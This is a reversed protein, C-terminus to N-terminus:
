SYEFSGSYCQEWGEGFVCGALDISNYGERSIAFLLSPSFPRLAPPIWLIKQETGFSETLTVVWGDSRCYLSPSTQPLLVTSPSRPLSQPVSALPALISTSQSLQDVSTERSKSSSSIFFNSVREVSTKWMKQPRISFKSDLDLHYGAPAMRKGDLSFAISSVCNSQDKSCSQKGLGVDWICVATDASGSVIRTGNPSFSVSHVCDRHGELQRLQMGSKTDWIRVTRDNSGSVIWDGNPSFVASLVESTHGNLQHVQTGSRADWIRVTKDSSGSIIHKEDPSFSVSQVSATHGTLRQPHESSNAVWIRVTKDASGSVVLKGNPSFAVCLVARTHGYLMHLRKGSEADWIYILEDQSGSVIYQGDPSFAASLVYDTHGKLQLLQKGSEADWLQVKKDYSGSVIRKGDPSFATSPPYGTYGRLYQSQAGSEADWIQVTGDASSSVIKTGDPSFAVSYVSETHGNLQQLERSLKFDWLQVTKDNSGSVIHSGTPSFSVSQVVDTHGNLQQLEKGSRVNWVRVTKDDSGSVIHESDPSFNISSVRSAHGKLKRLRKGSKTDWILIAADGSSAILKGDPSSAVALVYDKHGQLLQVQQGSKADWIRITTDLSGSVILKGDPSFVICQVRDTHGDLQQLQKGSEVDWIRITADFSGSVICAGDPSFATSPVYSTHGNLQQIQTGLEMDWMYITGDACGSVIYRGDPSFSVSCGHSSQGKLQRIKMGSEADWICVTNDSSGSIIRKGIPCFSVAKVCAGVDIVVRCHRNRTRQQTIVRPLCSFYNRWSDLVPTTESLALCSLYLHGTIRFPITNFLSVINMAESALTIMDPVTNGISLTSMLDRLIEKCGGIDRLLSMVEIWFIGKRQIMKLVLPLLLSRSEEDSQKTHLWWNRSAYALFGGVHQAVREELPPKLDVDAIFSSELCCINFRLSQIMETLCARALIYHISPLHCRFEGDMVSLIFDHFSAHFIYIPGDPSATFLVAHLSEVVAIVLQVDVSLLGAIVASSPPEAACIIAHLIAWRGKTDDIDDLSLAADVIRKYLSYISGREVKRALVREIRRELESPALRHSPSLYKVLTSAYIFLGDARAVLDNIQSQTLELKAELYLGIDGDVEEKPIEHLSIQPADLHMERVKALLRLVPRSTVIFKIGELQGENIANLLLDLFEEGRDCEDLADITVVKISLSPDAHGDTTSKWPKCLLHEFQLKLTAYPLDPDRRLQSILASEFAQSRSALHKAITPVLCRSDGSSLQISCFYSSALLNQKQLRECVDYLITTKGTGALGYLWFLSSELGSDYIKVWDLMKRIITVRTGPTCSQRQLNDSVAFSFAADTSVILQELIRSDHISEVVDNIKEVLGPKLGSIEHVALRKPREMLAHILGDVREHIEERNLYVRSHSIAEGPHLTESVEFGDVDLRVFLGPYRSFRSAMNEFVTHCSRSLDLVVNVFTEQGTLAVPSPLGSGISVIVSIARSKFISPIEELLNTTPNCHGITTAVFSESIGAGIPVPPLTQADSLTALLAELLTCQVSSGRGQYARLMIPKSLNAAAMATVAFKCDPTLKVLDAMQTASMLSETDETQSDLFGKLAGKLIEARESMEKKALFDSGRIRLYTEKADKTSMKLPGLMCAVLGGTGTGLVFDFVNCVRVSGTQLNSDVEYAQLIDEVVHIQTLAGLNEWRGGDLSLLAIGPKQDSSM